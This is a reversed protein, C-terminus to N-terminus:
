PCVQKCGKMRKWVDVLAEHLTSYVRGQYYWLGACYKM